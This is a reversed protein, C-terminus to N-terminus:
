LFNTASVRIQFFREPLRSITMAQMVMVMVKVKSQMLTMDAHVLCVPSGACGVM